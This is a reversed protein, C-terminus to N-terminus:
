HTVTNGYQATCSTGNYLSGAVVAYTPSPDEIITYNGTITDECSLVGKDSYDGAYMDVWVQVGKPTKHCEACTDAAIFYRRVNPIYFVTGAPIDPKEGVYGVALTIPNAYTGTGGANGEKGSIYTATSGAPDNDGAAYSTTYATLYAEGAAPTSSPPTTPPPNQPPPNNGSPKTSTSTSTSTSGSTGGSSHKPPQKTNNTNNTNLGASSIVTSSAPQIVTPPTHHWGFFLSGISLAAAAMYSIFRM